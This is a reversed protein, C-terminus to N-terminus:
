KYFNTAELNIHEVRDRLMYFSLTIDNERDVYRMIYDAQDSRKKIYKKGYAAVIDKVTSGIAINKDTKAGVSSTSIRYLTHPKEKEATVVVGDVDYMAYGPHTVDKAHQLAEVHLMNHLYLHNIHESTLNTHPENPIICASIVLMVLAIMMGKLQKGTM